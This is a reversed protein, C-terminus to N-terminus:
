AGDGKIMQKKKDERRQSIIRADDTKLPTANTNKVLAEIM